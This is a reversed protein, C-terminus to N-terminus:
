KLDNLKNYWALGEIVNVVKLREGEGLLIGEGKTYKTDNTTFFSEDGSGM